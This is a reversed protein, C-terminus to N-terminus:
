FTLPDTTERDEAVIAQLSQAHDDGKVVFDRMQNATQHRVELVKLM